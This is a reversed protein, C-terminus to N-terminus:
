QVGYWTTPVDDAPVRILYGDPTRAGDDYVWYNTWSHIFPGGANEAWDRTGNKRNPPSSFSGDYIWQSGDGLTILAVGHFNWPGGGTASESPWSDNSYFYMRVPRGTRKGVGQRHLYLVEGEMGLTGAIGCVLSAQQNCRGGTYSPNDLVWWGYNNRYNHYKEYEEKPELPPYYLSSVGRVGDRVRGSWGRGIDDYNKPPEAGQPYDPVPVDQGAVHDKWHVYHRMQNDIQYGVSDSGQGINQSAGRAWRCANEFHVKTNPARQDRSINKIPQDYTTYIRLPTTEALDVGGVTWTLDLAHITVGGGLPAATTVTITTGDELGTGVRVTGEITVDGSTARVAVEAPASLDEEAGLTVELRLLNQQLIAAPERRDGRVAFHPPRADSIAIADKVTIARVQPAVVDLTVAATADAGDPTLTVTGAATFRLGDETQEAPGDITVKADEPQMRLPVTQGALFTGERPSAIRVDGDDSSSDDGGTEDGSTDDGASADDGSDPLPRDAGRTGREYLRIQSGDPGPGAYVGYVREEGIRYIAWGVKETQESSGLNSLADTLSVRKFFEARLWGGSMRATGSYSVGDTGQRTIAFTGDAERSVWLTASAESGFWRSLDYTGDLPPDALVAPATLGVLLCAAGLATFVRTRQM